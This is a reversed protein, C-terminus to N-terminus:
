SQGNDYVLQSDDHICFLLSFLVIETMYLICYVYMYKYHAHFYKTWNAESQIRCIQDLQMLLCLRLSNQTPLALSKNNTM